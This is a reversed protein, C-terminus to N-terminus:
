RVYAVEGGIQSYQRKCESSPAFACLLKEKAAVARLLTCLDGGKTIWFGEIARKAITAVSGSFWTGENVVNFTAIPAQMRHTM